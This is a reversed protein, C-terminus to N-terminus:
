WEAAIGRWLVANLMTILWALVAVLVAGEPRQMEAAHGSGAEALLRVEDAFGDGGM